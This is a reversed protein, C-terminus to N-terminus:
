TFLHCASPLYTPPSSSTRRRLADNDISYNMGSELWLLYRGAESACDM